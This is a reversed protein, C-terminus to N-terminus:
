PTSPRATWEPRASTRVTSRTGGGEPAHYSVVYTTGAQVAVPADLEAEQWGTATEATFAATALLDGSAGWLHGVHVGTNAPGKYFRVGTVYGPVDARFKVGLEVPSHDNASPVAPVAGAAWVTSPLCRDELSQFSLRGSAGLRKRWRSPPHM